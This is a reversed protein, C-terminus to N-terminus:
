TTRLDTPPWHEDRLYVTQTPFAFELGLASVIDMIKLLVDERAKLWETWVATRTFCYLQVDLSHPGFDVFHTFHFDQWIAPHDNIMQSVSELFARMQDSSTEYTLGITLKIRRISRDSFNTIPQSTFTQNPVTVIAKDFRRVRTTRFGVEEVTGEVDGFQVWDGVQFPRDTFVVVSGFFNTVVDKAALALALGGVGLSAILSTVSYGLNQVVMVGVTVGLFLKLTKRLLPIVQDDLRTETRAAQRALAQGVVDVV